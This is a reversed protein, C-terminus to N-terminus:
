NEDYFIQQNITVTMALKLRDAYLWGNILRSYPCNM